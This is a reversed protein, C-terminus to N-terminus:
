FIGFPFYDVRCRPPLPPINGSHEAFYSEYNKVDAEAPILKPMVRCHAGFWGTGFSVIMCVIILILEVTESEM